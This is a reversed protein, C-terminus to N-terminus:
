LFHSELKSSWSERMTTEYLRDEEIYCEDLVNHPDYPEALGKDLLIANLLDYNGKGRPILVLALWRGYKGKQDIYDKGKFTRLYVEYDAKELMEKVVKKADKGEKTYLEPANIGALRIRTKFRIGFGLDIDVDLTDGDIVRVVKAKYFWRIMELGRLDKLCNMMKRIIESRSNVINVM